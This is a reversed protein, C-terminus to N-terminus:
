TVPNKRYDGLYAWWAWAAGGILRRGEGMRNQLLIYTAFNDAADEERGFIPVDFIDFTAHGVEHLTLWLFQSIAADDPTIGTSTKEKPLTERIHQLLEYCITVTPKSDERRYFANVLGCEATKVTLEQPLLLPSLIKQIKELALRAQVLDYIQQFEPNKPPVYLISVRNPQDGETVSPRSQAHAAAIMLGIAAIFGISRITRSRSRRVPIKEGRVKSMQASRCKSEQM